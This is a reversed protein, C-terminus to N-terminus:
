THFPLFLCLTCGTKSRIPTPTNLTINHLLLCSLLFYTVVLFLGSIQCNVALSNPTLLQHGHPLPRLLLHKMSHFRLCVCAAVGRAITTHSTHLLASARKQVRAYLASRLVSRSCSVLMPSAIVSFATRSSNSCHM